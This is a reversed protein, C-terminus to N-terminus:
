NRPHAEFQRMWERQELTDPVALGRAEELAQFAGAVSYGHSMLVGAAILSSRGIGARCHVAVARGDFLLDRLDVILTKLEEASDPVSRDQIPFRFFDIGRECCCDPERELGLEETEADTLASVIAAIGERKLLEIDEALWEGGRPRSAIALKFGEAKVWYLSM